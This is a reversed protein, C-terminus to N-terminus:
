GASERFVDEIGEPTEGERLRRCLLLFRGEPQYYSCTILMLLDDSTEARFPGTWVAREELDALYDAKRQEIRSILELEDYEDTAPFSAIGPATFVSSVVSDEALGPLEETSEVVNGTSLLGASAMSGAPEVVPSGASEESGQMRYYESEEPGSDAEQVVEAGSDASVSEAGSDAQEKAAAGDEKLRTEEEYFFNWPDMVNYFDSHSDQQSVNLAMVPVYYVEEEDYITRFMIVPHECVYSFDEYQMLQGFMKGSSMHHGHILVLWDRPELTNYENVFLTGNRDPNGYFDHHLYFDNDLQVVPHDVFDSVRLWGVTHRNEKLIDWFDPAIRETDIYNEEFSTKDSDAASDAVSASAESEACVPLCGACLIFVIIVAIAAIVCRCAARDTRSRVTIGWGRVCEVHKM